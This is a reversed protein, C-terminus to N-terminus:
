FPIEEEGVPNAQPTFKGLFPTGDLLYVEPVEADTLDQLNAALANAWEKPCESLVWDILRDKVFENGSRVCDALGDVCALRQEDTTFITPLSNMLFKAIFNHHDFDERRLKGIIVERLHGKRLYYEDIRSIWAAPKTNTRGTSPIYWADRLAELLMHEARLRTIREIEPWLHAPLIALVLTISSPADATSLDDSIAALLHQIEGETARSLIEETVMRYQEAEKWTWNRYLGILTDGRKRAPIQDVLGAVYERDRVFHPETVREVFDQILFSQQSRGLFSLLYDIFFVIADATAKDDDMREHSRPNRVFTYMGQLLLMLGKQMDQETKTQLKNICLNPSKDKGFGLARGALTYGDGDLGSRDRLVETVVSIADMITHTYNGARYSDRIAAWLSPEIHTELNM